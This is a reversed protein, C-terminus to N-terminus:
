SAELRPIFKFVDILKSASPASLRSFFQEVDFQGDVALKKGEVLDYLYKIQEASAARPTRSSSETGSAEADAAVDTREKATLM